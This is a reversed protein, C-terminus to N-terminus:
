LIGMARATQEDLYKGRKIDKKDLNKTLTTVDIYGTDDTATGDAWFTRARGMMYYPDNEEPNEDKWWYLRFGITGDDRTVNQLCYKDVGSSQIKTGNDFLITVRQVNDYPLSSWQHDRSNYEKWDGYLVHWEM